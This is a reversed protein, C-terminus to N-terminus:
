RYDRGRDAAAWPDDDAQRSGISGQRDNLLGEKPNSPAVPRLRASRWTRRSGPTLTPLSGSGGVDTSSRRQACSAVNGEQVLDLLDVPGGAFRRAHKLVLRQNALILRNRAEVGKDFDSRLTQDSYGDALKRAADAGTRVLASLGREEEPSLLDHEGAVSAYQDFSTLEM